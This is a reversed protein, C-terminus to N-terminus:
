TRVAVHITNKVDVQLGFFDFFNGSFSNLPEEKSCVSENKRNKFNIKPFSPLSPPEKLQRTSYYLIQKKTIVALFTEDPSLCMKRVIKFPPAKNKNLVTFTKILLAQEVQWVSIEGSETSVFIYDGSSTM